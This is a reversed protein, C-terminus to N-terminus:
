KHQDKINNRQNDESNEKIEKTSTKTDCDHQAPGPGEWGNVALDLHDEEEEEEENTHTTTIVQLLEVPTAAPDLEFCGKPANPAEKGSLLRSPVQHSFRFLIEERPIRRAQKPDLHHHFVAKFGAVKVLPVVVVVGVEEDYDDDLVQVMDYKHILDRGTLENWDPSWNRYLAWVDGKRPFIHIAAAAGQSGKTWRVKVKHSFADVSDYIESRSGIRFDGVTLTTFGSGVWSPSNSYLWRIQMKLPNQSLIRHISAYYRPMGDDDDYAAWVQHEGLSRETRDNDFDYFDPDAVDVRMPILPAAAAAAAAGSNDDEASKRFQICSSDRLSSESGRSGQNCSSDPNPAADKSGKVTAKEKQPGGGNNVGRNQIEKRAKEALIGHIQAVSLERLHDPIANIRITEHRATSMHNMIKEKDAANYYISGRRKKAVDPDPHDNFAAFGTGMGTGTKEFAHNKKRKLSKDRRTKAQAEEREKRVKEYTQQVVSAFESAGSAGAFPTWQFTKNNSNKTRQSSSSNHRASGSLGLGGRPIPAPPPTERAIFPEHCNPCLLNHNLYKRLYEYQVKCKHCVTWFTNNTRSHIKNNDPRSTSAATTKKGVNHFGNTAPPAPTTPPGKSPHKAAKMQFSSGGNAKRRRQDYAVRRTKESLLSWAESILRFAGEAGVSKNKDPHLMLALKRYQKRVTDEDAMSTIGLVSYWDAEGGNIINNNDGAAASYVELTALMQEIGELGPYLARAKMAFKKAGRVDKAHFKREALAKCRAAEDRNCEM